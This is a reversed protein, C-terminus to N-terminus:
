AVISKRSVSVGNQPARKKQLRLKRPDRYSKNMPRTMVDLTNSHLICTAKLMIVTRYKNASTNMGDTQTSARTLNHSLRLWCLIQKADAEHFGAQKM